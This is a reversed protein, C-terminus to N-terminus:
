RWSKKFPKPVIPVKYRGMEEVPNGDPDVGVIVIELPEENVPLLSDELQKLRRALNKSIM